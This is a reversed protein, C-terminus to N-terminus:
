SANPTAGLKMLVAQRLILLHGGPTTRHELLGEQCWRRVSSAHVRFYQATEHSSLFESLKM